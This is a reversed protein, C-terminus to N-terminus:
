ATAESRALRGKLAADSLNDSQNGLFLHDPRVCAKVDCRHLVGCRGGNDM